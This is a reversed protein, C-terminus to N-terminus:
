KRNAKDIARYRNVRNYNEDARIMIGHPESGPLDSDASVYDDSSVDLFNLYSNISDRIQYNIRNDDTVKSLVKKLLSELRDIRTILEPRNQPYDIEIEGVDDVRDIIGTRVAEEAVLTRMLESENAINRVAMIQKTVECIQDTMSYTKRLQPM